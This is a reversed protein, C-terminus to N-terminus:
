FPMNARSATIIESLMASGIENSRKANRLCAARDAPTKTAAM